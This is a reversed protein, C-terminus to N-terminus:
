HHPHPTHNPRSHPWCTQVAPRCTSFLAPSQSFHTALRPPLRARPRPPLCPPVPVHHTAALPVSLHTALLSAARPHPPAGLVLGRCKELQAESNAEIRLGLPGDTEPPTYTASSAGEGVLQVKSATAERMHSLFAGRPGLVKGRITHLLQPDSAREPDLELAAPIDVRTTYTGTGGPAAGGSAGLSPLQHAAAAASIGYTSQYEEVKARILQACYQRAAEDAGGAITVLRVDVGPPVDAAKQIFVRTGTEAQIWNITAGKGGIVHNVTMGNPISMRLESSRVFDGALQAVSAQAAAQAAALWPLNTVATAATAAASATAMPAPAPPPTAVVAAAAAAAAVAVAAAAPAPPTTVPAASAKGIVERSEGLLERALAEARDLATRDPSTFTLYLGREQEGSSSDPLAGAMKLRGRLAVSVGTEREIQAHTAPKTLVVRNASWNFDFERALLPGSQAAPGGNAETAPTGNAGAGGWRATLAAVLAM